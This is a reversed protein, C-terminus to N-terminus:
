FISTFKSTSSGFLITKSMENKGFYSMWRILGNRKEDALGIIQYNELWKFGFQIKM